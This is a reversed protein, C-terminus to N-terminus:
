FIPIEPFIVFIVLFLIYINHLGWAPAVLNQAFPGWPPRVGKFLHFFKVKQICTALLIALQYIM